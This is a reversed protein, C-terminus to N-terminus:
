ITGREARNKRRLAAAYKPDDGEIPKFADDPIGDALLKPTAGILANGHKIHHDLFVLPKGPELAELWLSVKTLEVAMPNLDVGYICRAVVERRASWIDRRAPPAVGARIEAVKRAIRRAAAILFVGAGCSPDCVTLSLLEEVIRGPDTQGPHTVIKGSSQRAADWMAEQHAREIADDIVPDLTTDLLCEVLSSPTYYSGTTKRGPTDKPM